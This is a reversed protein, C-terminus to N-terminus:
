YPKKKKLIIADKLIEETNTIVHKIIAINEKYKNLIDAYNLPKESYIKEIIKNKM